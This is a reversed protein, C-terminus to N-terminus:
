IDLDIAYEYLTNFYQHFLEINEQYSLKEEKKPPNTTAEQYIIDLQEMAKLYAKQYTEHEEPLTNIFEETKKVQQYDTKFNDLLFEIDLAEGTNSTGMQAYDRINTIYENWITTLEMASNYIKSNIEEKTLAPEKEKEEGKSTGCATFNFILLLSFLITCIKKM